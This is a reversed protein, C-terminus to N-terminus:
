SHRYWPVQRRRLRVPVLVAEGESDDFQPRSTMNDVLTSDELTAEFWALSQEDAWAVIQCCTYTGRQLEQQLGLTRADAWAEWEQCGCNRCVDRMSEEKTQDGCKKSAARRWWVTKKLGHALPESASRILLVWDFLLKM